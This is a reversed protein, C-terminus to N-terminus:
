GGVTADAFRVGCFGAIRLGRARFQALRHAPAADLIRVEGARDVAVLRV